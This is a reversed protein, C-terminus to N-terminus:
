SVTYTGCFTLYLGSGSNIGSASLRLDGSGSLNFGIVSCTTSSGEFRVVAFTETSLTGQYWETIYFGMAGLSLQAPFPFNGVAMQGSASGIGTCSVKGIINVTRGIKTYLGSSSFGALTGSAATFTPTWSGEEYDDLTNADSSASQTAPFTIGVGSASVAGRLAVAGSSNIGMSVAGAGVDV